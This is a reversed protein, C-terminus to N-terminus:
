YNKASKRSVFGRKEERNCTEKRTVVTQFKYYRFRKKKSTFERSCSEIMLRASFQNKFSTRDFM